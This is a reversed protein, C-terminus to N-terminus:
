SEAFINELFRDGGRTIIIALRDTTERRLYGPLLKGDWHITSLLGSFLSPAFKKITEYREKRFKQRVEHISTTNLVLNRADINFAEATAMLLHMVDKKSIKCKDLVTALKATMIPETARSKM